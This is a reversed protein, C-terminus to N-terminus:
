VSLRIEEILNQVNMAEKLSCNTAYNKKFLDLNEKKYTETIKYNKYIFTKKKNGELLTLTGSKIDGHISFNEGNIILERKEIKSFLNLNLNIFTGKSNKANLCLIDDCDINLHSIKKNFSYLIKLNGFIWNLYDIEHSLELLVGGGLKKQASVTKKYDIKRWSPLYTFCDSRVFFIKKKKTYNKIFKLIPHHRLNYGVFYKNKIKSFLKQKKNFLPKEVLVIKNKFLKEILLIFKYHFSSPSCIIIYDPNYEILKKYGKGFIKNFKRSSVNQIEIKKNILRLAKLHNKSGAGEGIILIRKFM